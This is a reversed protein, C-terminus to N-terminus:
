LNRLKSIYEIVERRSWLLLLFRLERPELLTGSAINNFLGNLSLRQHPSVQTEALNKIVSGAHVVPRFVNSGPTTICEFFRFRTMARQQRKSPHWALQWPSNAGYHQPGSGAYEERDPPHHLEYNQYVTTWSQSVPVNNPSIPLTNSGFCTRISERYISQPPLFSLSQNLDSVRPIGSHRQATSQGSSGM